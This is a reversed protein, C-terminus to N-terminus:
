MVRRRHLQTDFHIPSGSAIHEIPTDEWIASMRETVRKFDGTDLNLCLHSREDYSVVTTDVVLIDQYTTNAFGDWTEWLEGARTHKM